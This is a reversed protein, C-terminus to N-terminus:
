FPLGDDEHEESEPLEGSFNAMEDFPISFWHGPNGAKEEAEMIIDRPDYKLHPICYDKIVKIDGDAMYVISRVAQDMAGVNSYTYLTKELISIVELAEHKEFSKNIEETVDLAINEINNEM